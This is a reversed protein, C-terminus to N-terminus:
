LNETLSIYCPFKHKPLQPAGFNELVWLIKFLNRGQSFPPLPVEDLVAVKIHKRTTTPATIQLQITGPTVPSAEPDGEAGPPGRVGTKLALCRTTTKEFSRRPDAWSTASLAASLAGLLCLCLGLCFHLTMTECSILFTTFNCSKVM